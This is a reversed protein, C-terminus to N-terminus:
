EAITILIDDVFFRYDPGETLGLDMYPSSTVEASTLTLVTSQDAGKVTMTYEKFADMSLDANAITGNEVTGTSATLTPVADVPFNYATTIGACKFKVTLDATAKGMEKLREGVKIALTGNGYYGEKNSALYRAVAAEDAYGIQMFGAKSYCATAELAPNAPIYSKSDNYPDEGCWTKMFGVPIDIYMSNAGVLEDFGESIVVTSNDQAPLDSLEAEAPIIAIGNSLLVSNGSYEAGCTLKIWLWGQAPIKQADPITFKVSKWMAENEATEAPASFDNWTVGEDSSWTYTMGGASGERRSGYCFKLDGSLDEKVPIKITWSDGAAWEYGAIGIQFGAYKKPNTHAPCAIRIERESGAINSQEIILGDEFTVTRFDITANSLGEALIAAKGSEVDLGVSTEWTEVIPFSYGVIVPEPPTVESNGPQTVPIEVTVAGNESTVVLDATRSDATENELLRVNFSGNGDGSQTDTQIWEAKSGNATASTVNWKCDATVEVVFTQQTYDEATYSTPNVTISANGGGTVEEEPEQCSFPVMCLALAM